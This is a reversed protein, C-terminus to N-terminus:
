EGVHGFDSDPVRSEHWRNPDYEDEEREVIPKYDLLKAFVFATDDVLCEKYSFPLNGDLLYLELDKFKSAMAHALTTVADGMIVGDSILDEHGDDCNRGHILRFQQALEEVGTDVFNRDSIFLLIESLIEDLEFECVRMYSTAENFERIENVFELIIADPVARYYSHHQAANRIIPPM